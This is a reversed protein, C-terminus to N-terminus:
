EPPLARHQAMAEFQAVTPHEGIEPYKRRIITLLELNPRIELGQLACAEGTSLPCATVYPAAFAPKLWAL